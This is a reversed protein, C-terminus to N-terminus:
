HIEVPHVQFGGGHLDDILREIHEAGRAECEVDIFADKAVQERDDAAPLDRVDALATRHLDEVATLGDPSLDPWEHDHGAIGAFTATLPDLAALDEVFQDTRADVLRTM